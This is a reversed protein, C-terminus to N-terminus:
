LFNASIIYINCKLWLLGHLYIWRSIRFRYQDRATVMAVNDIDIGALHYSFQVGGKWLIRLVEDFDCLPITLLLMLKFVIKKKPHIYIYRQVDRKKM